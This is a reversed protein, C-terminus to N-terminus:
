SARVGLVHCIASTLDARNLTFFHLKDAGEAVLTRCQDATFMASVLHRAKEDGDVGEFLERMDEPISTGGVSTFKAAQAFSLIPLIGPIIPITVGAKAAADRFRLFAANDFFVQTIARGAGADIKRKLNDIEAAMDLSQPHVEPYVAVTIEFDAIRKLGAILDSAYPYGGPFPVYDTQNDPPDGRLAVIHHIGADWYHRAIDDVEERIAGVCTLHAAPTLSTERAIRVVTDHTRERTSGGAGYTVSVFEPKLPELKKIADWLNEAMKETKPPFFEFSISPVNAVKAALPPLCVSKRDAM